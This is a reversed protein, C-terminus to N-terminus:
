PNVGLSQWSSAGIVPLLQQTYAASQPTDIFKYVNYIMKPAAALGNADCNFLGCAIKDANLEYLNDM